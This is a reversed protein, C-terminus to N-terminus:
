PFVKREFKSKGLAIVFLRFVLSRWSLRLLDPRTLVLSDLWALACLQATRPPRHARDTPGHRPGSAKQATSGVRSLPSCGLHPLWPPGRAPRSTVLRRNCAASLCWREPM